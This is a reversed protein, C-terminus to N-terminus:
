MHILSGDDDLLAEILFYAMYIMLLRGLLGRWSIKITYTIVHWIEDVFSIDDPLWTFLISFLLSVTFMM